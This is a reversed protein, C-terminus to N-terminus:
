GPDHRAESAPGAKASAFAKLLTSFSDFLVAPDTVIEGGVYVSRDASMSIRQEPTAGCFAIHQEVSPGDFYTEFSLGPGAPIDEHNGMNWGFATVNERHEKM